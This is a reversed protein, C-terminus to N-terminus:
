SELPLRWVMHFGKGASRAVARISGGHQEVIGKCVALGLGTGPQKGPGAGVKNFREFM